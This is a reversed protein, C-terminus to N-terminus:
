THFNEKLSLYKIILFISMEKIFKKEEKFHFFIRQYKNNFNNIHNMLNMFNMLNMLNIFNM